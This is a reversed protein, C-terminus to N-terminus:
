ALSATNDAAACNGRDLETRAWPLQMELQQNPIYTSSCIDWWIALITSSISKPTLGGLRVMILLGHFLLLFSAIKEQQIWRLERFDNRPCADQFAWPKFHVTVRTPHSPQIFCQGMCWFPQLNSEPWPVYRPQPNSGQNVLTYSAVLWHEM